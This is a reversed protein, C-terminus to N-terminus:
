SLLPEFCQESIVRWNLMLSAAILNSWRNGVAPTAAEATSIFSKVSSLKSLAVSADIRQVGHTLASRNRLRIAEEIPSADLGSFSRESVLVKLCDKVSEGNSAFKSASALTPRLVGGAGDLDMLRLEYLRFQLYTELCRVALAISSAGDNLSSCYESKRYFYASLWLLTILSPKRGAAIDRADQKFANVGDSHFNCIRVRDSEIEPWSAITAIEVPEITSFFDRWCEIPTKKSYVYVSDTTPLSARYRERYTSLLVGLERAREHVISSFNGHFDLLASRLIRLVAEAHDTRKSNLTKRLNGIIVLLGKTRISELPLPLLKGSEFAVVEDIDEEIKEAYLAGFALWDDRASCRPEYVCRFRPRTGVCKDLAEKYESKKVSVFVTCNRDLQEEILYSCYLIQEENRLEDSTLMLLM